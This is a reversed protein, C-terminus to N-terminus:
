VVPSLHSILWLSSVTSLLAWAVQHMEVGLAGRWMNASM